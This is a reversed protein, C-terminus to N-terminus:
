CIGGSAALVRYDVKALEVLAPPESDPELTQRNEAQLAVKAHQKVPIATLSVIDVM